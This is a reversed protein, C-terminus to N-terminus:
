FTGYSINNKLDICILYAQNLFHVQNSISYIIIVKRMLTIRVTKVNGTEQMNLVNIHTDTPTLSKTMGIAGLHSEPLM